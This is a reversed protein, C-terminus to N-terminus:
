HGDGDRGKAYIDVFHEDYVGIIEGPTEGRGLLIFRKFAGSGLLERFVRRAKLEEIGAGHATCILKVGANVIDTVVDLEERRGIEDVAIVDPSMSRLLMRMGAAKPCGDLVDTRPGVDISGGSRAGAVEGREDAVGVNYGKYSLLRVVDRLLTTKGGGPPSIIM